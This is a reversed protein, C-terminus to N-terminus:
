SLLMFVKSKKDLFNNNYCFSELKQINQSKSNLNLLFDFLVPNPNINPNPNSNSNPKLNPSPYPKPSPNPDDILIIDFLWFTCFTLKKFVPIQRFFSLVDFRVLPWFRTYVSM